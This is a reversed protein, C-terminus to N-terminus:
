NNIDNTVNKNSSRNARQPQFPHFCNGFPLRRFAKRMPLRKINSPTFFRVALASFWSISSPFISAGAAGRRVGMLINERSTGWRIQQCHKANWFDFSLCLEDDHSRNHFIRSNDVWLDRLEGCISNEKRQHWALNLEVLKRFLAEVWTWSQHGRSGGCSLELARSQAIACCRENSPKASASHLWCAELM